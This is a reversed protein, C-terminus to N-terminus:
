FFYYRSLYYHLLLTFRANKVFSNCCYVVLEINKLMKLMNMINKDNYISMDIFIRLKFEKLKKRVQQAQALGTFLQVNWLLLFHLSWKM